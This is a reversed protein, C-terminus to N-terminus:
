DNFDGGILYLNSCSRGTGAKSCDYYQNEITKEYGIPEVRDSHVKVGYVDKGWTNPPLLGNVDVTIIFITDKAEVNDPTDKIGVIMNNDAFYYDDIYYIDDKTVVSKNMYKVKYRKPFKSDKLRIYPKLITIILDERENATKARKFSTLIESQEQKLIADQVYTLRNYIDKWKTIHNAQVTSKLSTPMFLLIIAFLVLLTVSYEVRWKSLKM